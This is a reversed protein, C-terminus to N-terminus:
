YSPNWSSKEAERYTSLQLSKIILVSILSRGFIDEAPSSSMESKLRSILWDADM